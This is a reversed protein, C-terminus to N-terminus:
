FTENIAEISLYATNEADIRKCQEMLERFIHFWKGKAEESWVPDFPPLMRLFIWLYERRM